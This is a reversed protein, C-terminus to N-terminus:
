SKSELPIVGNWGAPPVHNHQLIFGLLFDKGRDEPPVKHLFEYAKSWDGRLFADLAIEYDILHDDSLLPFAAAPPLLESVTMPNEMGYPKVVALRRIRGVTPPMQDRVAQATTEELLVPVRLIKTMGELRSARNVVPGFVTVKAQELTGIQGAVAVGTALGVGAQFDGASAGPAPRLVRVAAFGLAAQCAPVGHRKAAAALGLLGHGADGQFDAIVGKHELINQTM